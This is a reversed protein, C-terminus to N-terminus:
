SVAGDDQTAAKEEWLLTSGADDEGLARVLYPLTEELVAKLTWPPNLVLLGSGCMGRGDDRERKVRLAAACRSRSHLSMIRDPLARAEERELLPYWVIYIGSAFRRLADSLTAVVADYENKVEYSPDILVIARRSPPPLLARLGSLGDARRVRIRRDKVFREALAAHDTPHLEFLFGQDGDRLLSSAIAPSGPYSAPGEKARYAELLALYDAVARPAGGSDAFARLREAGNRWEEREAAYGESLTFAGAGAHTDVYRFPTEKKGLHALCSLLVLHKLVDAHNGAHYAHRYSLM